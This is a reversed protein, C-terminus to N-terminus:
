KGKTASVTKHSVNFAYEQRLCNKLIARIQTFFEYWMGHMSLLFSGSFPAASSFM